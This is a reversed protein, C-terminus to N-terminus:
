ALVGPVIAVACRAHQLLSGSMPRDFGFPIQSGRPQGIVVLEASKSAHACARSPEGEVFEQTVHVQPYKRAWGALAEAVAAHHIDVESPWANTPLAHLVVLSRARSDAQKFAYHLVHQEPHDGEVGVVVGQPPPATSSREPVVVVPCCATFALARAVAPGLNPAFWFPDDAGVILEAAETSVQLLEDVPTHDSIRYHTKPPNDEGRIRERATGLVREAVEVAHQFRIEGIVAPSYNGYGACHIVELELGSHSAEDLAFRLAAPQDKAIGVAIRPRIPDPMDREGKIAPTVSPATKM